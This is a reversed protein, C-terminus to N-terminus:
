PPSCSVQEGDANTEDELDVSSVIEDADYDVEETVLDKEPPPSERARKTLVEQLSEPRVPKTINQLIRVGALLIDQAPDPAQDSPSESSSSEYSYSPEEEQHKRLPGLPAEVDGQDSEVLNPHLQRKPNPSPTELDLPRKHQGAQKPATPGPPKTGAPM